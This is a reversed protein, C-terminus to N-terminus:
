ITPPRFWVPFWEPFTWYILGFASTVGISIWRALFVVVIGTIFITQLWIQIRSESVPIRRGYAYLFLALIASIPTLALVAHMERTAQALAWSLYFGTLVLNFYTWALAGIGIRDWRGLSRRRRQIYALRAVVMILGIFLVWSLFGHVQTMYFVTPDGAASAMLAPSIGEGTEMYRKLLEEYGPPLDEPIKPLDPPM